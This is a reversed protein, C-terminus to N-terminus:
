KKRVGSKGAPAGGRPKAPNKRARKRVAAGATAVTTTTRAAAKQKLDEYDLAGLQEKLVQITALARTTAPEVVDADEEVARVLDEAGEALKGNMVRVEGRNAYATASFPNIEPARSYRADAEDFREEQQAISGLATHFYADFPDLALLGEFITKAEEFNQSVLYSHGVEAIQYQEQKTIGELEGLTVGGAVFQDVRAQDWAV